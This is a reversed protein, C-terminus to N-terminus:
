DRRLALAGLGASPWDVGVWGAWEFVQHPRECREVRFLPLRPPRVLPRKAATQPRNDSVAPTTEGNPPLWIGAASRGPLAADRLAIKPHFTQLRRV